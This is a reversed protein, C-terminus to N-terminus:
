DEGVYLTKRVVKNAEKKPMGTALVENYLRAIEAKLTSNNMNLASEKIAINSKKGTYDGKEIGKRIINRRAEYQEITMGSHEEQFLIHKGPDKIGKEQLKKYKSEYLVKPLAANGMAAKYATYDKILRKAKTEASITYKRKPRSAKIRAVNLKHLKEREKMMKKIQKKKNKKM